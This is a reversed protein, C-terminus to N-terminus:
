AKAGQKLEYDRLAKIVSDFAFWQPISEGARLLRRFETGSLKKVPLKAAKAESEPTFGSEGVGTYMM